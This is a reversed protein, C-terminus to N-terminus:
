RREADETCLQRSRGASFLDPRRGKLEFLRAEPILDPWQSVASSTIGFIKAVAGVGGLLDCLEKKTM